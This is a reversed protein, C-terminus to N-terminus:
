AKAAYILDSWSNTGAPRKPGEKLAEFAADLERVDWVRCSDIALACPMDGRRVLDDFKSPSLGVYSAAEERCLGRRVVFGVSKM